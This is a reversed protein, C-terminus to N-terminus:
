PLPKFKTFLHPHCYTLSAIKGAVLKHRISHVRSALNWKLPFQLRPSFFDGSCMGYDSLPPLVYVVSWFCKTERHAILTKFLFISKSFRKCLDFIMIEFLSLAKYHDWGLKFAWGSAARVVTGSQQHSSSSTEVSTPRDERFVVLQDPGATIYAWKSM